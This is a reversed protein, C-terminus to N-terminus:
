RRCRTPRMELKRGCFLTAWLSPQSYKRESSISGRRLNRQSRIINSKHILEPHCHGYNNQQKTRSFSKESKQKKTQIPESMEDDQEDEDEGEDATRSPDVTTRNLPAREDIFGQQLRDTALPSSSKTHTYHFALLEAPTCPRFRDLPLVSPCLIASQGARAHNRKVSAYSALWALALM